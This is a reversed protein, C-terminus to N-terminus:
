PARLASFNFCRALFQPLYVCLDAILLLRGLSSPLTGNLQNDALSRRRMPADPITTLLLVILMSVTADAGARPAHRAAAAAAGACLKQLNTLSFGITSPITGVLNNASLDRPPSLLHPNSQLDLSPM